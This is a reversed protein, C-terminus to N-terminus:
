GAHRVPAQVELQPSPMTRFSSQSSPLRRLPSPQELSHVTSLPNTHLLSTGGQTSPSGQVSTTGTTNRSKLSVCPSKSGGYLPGSSPTGPSTCSLRSASPLGTAVVLAM